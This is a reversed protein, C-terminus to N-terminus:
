GRMKCLDTHDPVVQFVVVWRERVASSLIANSKGAVVLGGQQGRRQLGCGGIQAPM